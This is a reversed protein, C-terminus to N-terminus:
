PCSQGGSVHAMWSNHTSGSNHTYWTISSQSTYSWRAAYSLHSWSYLTKSAGTSSWHSSTNIWSAHIPTEPVKITFSGSRLTRSVHGWSTYWSVSSQSTASCWSSHSTSSTHAWCAMAAVDSSNM